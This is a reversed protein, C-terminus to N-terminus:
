RSVARLVTPRTATCTTIQGGASHSVEKLSEKSATGLIWRRADYASPIPTHAWFQPLFSAPAKVPSHVAALRAGRGQFAESLASELDVQAQFPRQKAMRLAAAEIALGVAVDRLLSRAKRPSRAATCTPFHWSAPSLTIRHMPSCNSSVDFLIQLATRALTM